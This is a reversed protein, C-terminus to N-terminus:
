GTLIMINDSLWWPLICFVKFKKGKMKCGNFFSICQLIVNYSLAVVVDSCETKDIFGM